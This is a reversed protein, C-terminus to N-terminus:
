SERLHTARADPLASTERNLDRKISCKFFDDLLGGQICDDGAGGDLVV